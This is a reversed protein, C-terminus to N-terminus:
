VGEVIIRASSSPGAKLSVAIEQPTFRTLSATNYPCLVYDTFTNAASSTVTLSSTIKPSCGYPSGGSVFSQPIPSDTGAVWQLSASTSGSVGSAAFIVHLQSYGNNIVNAGIAGSAVPVWGSDFLVNGM